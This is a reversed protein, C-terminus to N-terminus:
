HVVMLVDGNRYQDGIRLGGTIAAANSAYNGLTPIINGSADTNGKPHLYMNAGSLSLVGAGLVNNLLNVHSPYPGLQDTLGIDIPFGSTNNNSIKYGYTAASFSYTSLQIGASGSPQTVSSRINNSDIDVGGPLVNEIDIAYFALTKADTFVFSNNKVDINRIASQPSYLRTNKFTNSLLTLNTVGEYFPTPYEYAVVCNDNAQRCDFVNGILKVDVSNAVDTSTTSHKYLTKRRQVGDGLDIFGTSIGINGSFLINKVQYYTSFCGNNADQCINGTASASWVSEFDVGVDGIDSLNNNSYTVRECMSAWVGGGGINSINNGTAVIDHCKRTAAPTADSGPQPQGGWAEIGQVYNSLTNGTAIANKAYIFGIGAQGVLRCAGYGTSNLVKINDSLQADTISAYTSGSPQYTQLLSLGTATCDEMTLNTTMVPAVAVPGTPDTSVFNIGKIKINSVNTLNLINGSASTITAAKSAGLITTNSPISYGNAPASYIGSLVIPVGNACNLAQQLGGLFNEPAIQKTTAPNLRFTVSPNLSGGDHFIVPANCIHVTASSINSQVASLASIVHIPDSQACAAAMTSPGATLVGNPSEILITGAAYSINFSVLFIALVWSKM